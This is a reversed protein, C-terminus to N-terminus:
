FTLSKKLVKDNQEIAAVSLDSKNKLEIAAAVGAAGCGVIIVDYIM